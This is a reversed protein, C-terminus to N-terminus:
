ARMDDSKYSAPESSPRFEHLFPILEADPRYELFSHHSYVCSLPFVLAQNKGVRPECVEEKVNRPKTDVDSMNRGGEMEDGDAEWFMLGLQHIVVVLYRTPDMVM